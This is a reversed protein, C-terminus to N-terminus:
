SSPWSVIRHDSDFMTLTHPRVRHSVASIIFELIVGMRSGSVQSFKKTERSLGKLTFNSLLVLRTRDRV